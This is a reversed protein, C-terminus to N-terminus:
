GEPDPDFTRSEPLGLLKTLTALLALEDRSIREDDIIDGWTARLFARYVDRAEGLTLGAPGYVSSLTMPDSPVLTGDRIIRVLVAFLAEQAPRM